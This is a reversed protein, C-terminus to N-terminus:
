TNLSATAIELGTKSDNRRRLRMRNYRKVREFRKTKKEEQEPKLSENVKVKTRPSKTLRVAKLIKHSNTKNSWTLEKLKKKLMELKAHQEEIEKRGCNIENNLLMQVEKVEFKLQEKDIEPKANEQVEEKKFAAAEKQLKEIDAKLKKIASTVQKAREEKQQMIDDQQKIM